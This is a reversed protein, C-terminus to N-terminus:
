LNVIQVKVQFLLELCIVAELLIFEKITSRYKNVIAKQASTFLVALLLNSIITNRTISKFNFKFIILYVLLGHLM